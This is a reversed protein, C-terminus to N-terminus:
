PYWARCSYNSRFCPHDHLQALGPLLVQTAWQQEWASRDFELPQGSTPELIPTPLTGAKGGRCRNRYMDLAEVEVAFPQGCIISGAPRGLKDPFTLSWDAPPGPSVSIALQMEVQVGGEAAFRLFHACEEGVQQPAQLAHSACKLLLCWAHKGM